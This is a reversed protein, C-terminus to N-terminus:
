FEAGTKANRERIAAETRPALSELGVRVADAQVEEVFPRLTEDYRRFALAHDQGASRLAEGLAGAGDIALSGGLGAAPSPCYAADGVLVVRGKSWAPMRIQCLKDFYFNTSGALEQLLEASRWGVTDFQAAIMQRQRAEDRRDYPIEQESAFSFIIDTKNRYANLMVAKGPVNFLQATDREILLKEVITISFYQQLSHVFRAEDGFLLKRVFSHTGDCGLVLDFSRPPRRRFTVDVRDTEALTEISDAFIVECRDKVADFLIKMLVDREIEYDDDPQPEGEERVVLKRATSDDANKFEFQRLSLRNAEIADFLGMRKVIAITNGRINVATGGTRIGPSIEVVTVAYGLESLWWACSLGAFSAGSILVTRGNSANM